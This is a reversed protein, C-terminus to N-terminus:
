AMTSFVDICASEEARMKEIDENDKDKYGVLHLFGHAMVRLLEAHFDIGIEQANEEVRDISIFIDSQIEKGQKYPFTIIDTYYDHNLYEKNIKLLYDDSCFIYTLEDIKVQYRKELMNIWDQYVQEDALQFDKDEYYFSISSTM